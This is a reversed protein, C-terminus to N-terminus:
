QVVCEGSGALPHGPTADHRDRLTRGGAAYAGAARQGPHDTTAGPVTLWFMGAAQTRASTDRCMPYGMSSLYVLM